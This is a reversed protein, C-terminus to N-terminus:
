GVVGGLLDPGEAVEVTARGGESPVLPGDSNENGQLGAPRGEGPGRVGALHESSASLIGM